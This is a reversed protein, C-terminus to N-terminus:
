VKFGVDRIYFDSVKWQPLTPTLVFRAAACGHKQESASGTGDRERPRVGGQRAAWRESAEPQCSERGGVTGAERLGRAARLRRATRSRTTLRSQADKELLSGDPDRWCGNWRSWVRGAEEYDRLPLACGRTSHAPIVAAKGAVNASGPRSRKVAPVTLNRVDARAKIHVAFREPAVRVKSGLQTASFDAVRVIPATRRTPGVTAWTSTAQLGARHVKGPLVSSVMTGSGVVLSYAIWFLQEPPAVNTLLKLRAPRDCKEPVIRVVHRHQKPGSSVLHHM